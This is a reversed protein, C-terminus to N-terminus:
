NDDPKEKKPKIVFVSILTGCAMVGLAILLAKTDGLKARLAYNLVLPIVFILIYTLLQKLQNPM